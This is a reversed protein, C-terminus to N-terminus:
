YFKKEHFIKLLNTFFIESRAEWEFVKEGNMSKMSALVSYIAELKVEIRHLLYFSIVIPFGIEQILTIWQEMQM